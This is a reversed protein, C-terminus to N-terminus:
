PELTWYLRRNKAGKNETRTIKIRGIESTNKVLTGGDAQTDFGGISVIRFEPIEKPLVDKLRFLEPIKLTEERSLFSIKHELNREIVENTKGEISKFFEPSYNETNFDVRSEPNGLQNGTILNGTEKFIVGAIIHASSHMRMFWYRREWDIVGHVKEGVNLGEISELKHLVKGSKKVVELVKRGELTGLDCPQGGGQPYFATKDLEVCEGEIGVICADFEKLYSDKLFLLETM